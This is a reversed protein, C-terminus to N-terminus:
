FLLFLLYWSGDPMMPTLQTAPLAGKNRLGLLANAQVIMVLEREGKLGM